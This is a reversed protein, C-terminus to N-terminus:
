KRRFRSVLVLWSFLFTARLARPLRLPERLVRYLWELGLRQMWFPARRKVGAIYDLTGGVGIAVKAKLKDKYQAIFEDQRPAGFAVLLIDPKVKSIGEVVKAESIHCTPCNEKKHDHPKIGMTFGAIRIKPRIMRLKRAAGRAVGPAGGLLYVTYGEEEALRALMWVLDVGSVREKLKKGFFRSAWVPGIGDPVALSADNIIKKFNPNKQAEVIFEANVTVVQHYGDRRIFNYIWTIAQDMDVNDVQVGLIGVRDRM